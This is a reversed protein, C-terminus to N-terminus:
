RHPCQAKRPHVTLADWEEPLLRMQQGPPATHGAAVARRRLTWPTIGLREAAQGPLESEAYARAIEEADDADIQRWKGFARNAAVAPLCSVTPDEGRRQWWKVARAFSTHHYGARRAAESLSVCGPGFGMPLGLSIAKSRVGCATRGLRAALTRLNVDGWLLRLRRVEDSTWKERRRPAKLARDAM